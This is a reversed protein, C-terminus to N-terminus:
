GIGEAVLSLASAAAEPAADPAADPETEPQPEAEPKPAPEPTPEPEREPRQRGSDSIDTASMLVARALLRMEARSMEEARAVLRLRPAEHASRVLLLEGERPCPAEHATSADSIRMPARRPAPACPSTKAASSVRVRVRM